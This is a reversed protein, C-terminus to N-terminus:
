CCGFRYRVDVTIDPDNVIQRAETRVECVARDTETKIKLNDAALDTM